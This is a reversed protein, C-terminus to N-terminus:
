SIVWAGQGKNDEARREQFRRREQGRRLFRQHKGELLRKLEWPDIDDHQRREAAQRVVYRGDNRNSRKENIDPHFALM